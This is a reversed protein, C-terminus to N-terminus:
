FVNKTYKKTAHICFESLKKNNTQKKKNKYKDNKEHRGHKIIWRQLITYWPQIRFIGDLAMDEKDRPAM